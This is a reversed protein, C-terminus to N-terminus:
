KKEQSARFMKAPFPNAVDPSYETLQNTRRINGPLFSTRWESVLRLLNAM